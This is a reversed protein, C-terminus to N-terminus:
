MLSKEVVIVVVFVTVSAWLIRVVVVVRTRFYKVNENKKKMVKDENKM